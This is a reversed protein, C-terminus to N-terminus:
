EEPAAIADNTAKALSHIKKVADGNPASRDDKVALDRALRLNKDLTAWLRTKKFDPNLTSVRDRFYDLVAPQVLLSAREPTYGDAVIASAIELGRWWGGLAVLHAIEEDKLALMGKEVDRQTGVLESRVGDWDKQAAREIIGKSHRTVHDGVGLGKAQRLLVRGIPEIKSQREAAVALFGDAILSGTTLALRARDSPNQPPLDRAVLEYPVPRLDRLATLLTEISPTTFQNVGLEEQIHDQAADRSPKAPKKDAARAGPFVLLGLAVFLSARLRAYGGAPASHM